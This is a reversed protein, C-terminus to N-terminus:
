KKYGSQLLIETRNKDFIALLCFLEFLIEVYKSM